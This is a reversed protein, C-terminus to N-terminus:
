QSYVVAQANKSCVVGGDCTVAIIRAQGHRESLSALGETGAVVVATSLMDAYAASPALVTASVIDSRVPYGNRPDVIHHFSRGAILRSREFSSSTSVACDQAEFQVRPFGGEPPVAVELLWPRGEPHSGLLWLSSGFDLDACAVGAARVQAAVLDAAQGKAAAGVDVQLLPDDKSVCTGHVHLKGAGIHRCAERVAMDDPVRDARKWLFSARGVTFDFLPEEANFRRMRSLLRATEPAVEVRRVPANLRAVDSAPRSFSWLAHLRRCLARAQGLLVDAREHACDFLTLSNDTDFCSFSICRADSRVIRRSAGDPHGDMPLPM